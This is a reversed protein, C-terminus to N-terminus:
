MSGFEVQQHCVTAQWFRAFAQAVYNDESDFRFAMDRHPHYRVWGTVLERLCHQLAEWASEDHQLTARRLLELGYEDTCPNGRRYQDIERACLHMLATVEMASPSGTETSAFSLTTSHGATQKENM